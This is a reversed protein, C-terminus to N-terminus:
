KVIFAIQLAFIGVIGGVIVLGLLSYGIMMGIEDWDIM